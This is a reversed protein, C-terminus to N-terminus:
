FDVTLRASFRRSGEYAFSGSTGTVSWGFANTVNQVQLRFSATEGFAEFRYRGGVDVLTAAPVKFTNLRNAFNAGRHEISTELSLGGWAPPAYNANFRVLLPPRGPPVRGILGRDVTSGSIRPQLYMLGAVVTLDPVPRGALSVEVGRHRVDGVFTFVNAPDRDFYPKSVEFVGALLTLRPTILYRVGGDVQKTLSAPLAEGRNVANEPAIGSEELGRTFSSYFALADTAFLTVTGNYIWPSSKTSALPLGPQTVDRTYFSKQLGFSITGVGEWYGLYSIGPSVQRAKDRSTPGFTFVPEPRPTEVGFTAPGLAAGAGGGFTREVDRGKTAIHVTHQRDGDSFTRTLRVEGSYSRRSSAPDAFADLSAAGSPQVNRYFLTVNEPERRASRFLGVQLGWDGLVSARTILGFTTDKMQRQAWTQSTFVSRDIEPPLYAGGSLVLPQTEEDDFQPSLVFLPIIEIDESPTWRLIGGVNLGANDGRWEAVRRYASLGIGAALKGPILALEADNSATAQPMGTPYGYGISASSRTEDGPIRLQIDGIGTPAPFPYVLASLGVRMVTGQSMRNGFRGQQDFYLGEIRLNGAQEPSFGRANQIGYLGVNENGIQTGFADEAKTVANETARQAKATPAAGVIVAAAVAAAIGLNIRV